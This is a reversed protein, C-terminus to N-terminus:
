HGYAGHCQCAEVGGLGAAELEEFARGLIEEAIAQHDASYPEALARVGM